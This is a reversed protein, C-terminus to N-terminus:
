ITFFTVTPWPMGTQVTQLQNFIKSKYLDPKKGMRATKESSSFIAAPEWVEESMLNLSENFNTLTLFRGCM